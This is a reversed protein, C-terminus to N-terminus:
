QRRQVGAPDFQEIMRLHNAFQQIQLPAHRSTALVADVVRSPQVIIKDVAGRASQDQGGAALSHNPDGGFHERPRPFPRGEPNNVAFNRRYRWRSTGCIIAFIDL